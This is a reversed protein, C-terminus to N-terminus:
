GFYCCAQLCGRLDSRSKKVERDRMKIVRKLTSLYRSKEAHSLYNLVTRYELLMLIQLKRLPTCRWM